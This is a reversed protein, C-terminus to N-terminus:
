AVVYGSEAFAQRGVRSSVSRVAARLQEEDSLHEIVSRNRKLWAKMARFGIEIPMHEPDYPELFLVVCGMEHVADRVEESHHIICGDLVLVSRPGPYPTM